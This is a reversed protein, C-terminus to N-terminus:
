IRPATALGAGRLRAVADSVHGRAVAKYLRPRTLKALQPRKMATTLDAAPSWARQGCVPSQTALTDAPWRRTFARVRSSPLSHGSRQCDKSGPRSSSAMTARNDVFSFVGDQVPTGRRRRGV